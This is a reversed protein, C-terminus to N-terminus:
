CFLVALDRETKLSRVLVLQGHFLAIDDVDQALYTKVATRM